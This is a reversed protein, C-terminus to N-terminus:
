VYNRGAISKINEPNIKGDANVTKGYAMFTQDTQPINLPHVTAPRTTTVLWHLLDQQLEQVVDQYDPEFFLNKMEWPDADLDYLEGFGDPYDSAFMEEPYYILRYKGKRISKSWAFETVGIEHVQGKEGRLLHSIDKGDSTEMNDIGVLNCITNCFDVSEVIEDAKYGTKFEGPWRWIMPVRTIADSCIGPAKELVGHECAYDGHDSSYIVITDEDLDNEKLWDILEGVAHDVHSVNGLYGHLKRLRGAKYTKPEFLQWNGNRFHNATRILNPAKGIMDYDANPPLTLDSEDYLDWFEQAPTYCQHPKPLSVHLFFPDNDDVCQTMFEMGKRVAWGEQGDEYSVKSPRGEVTQNGRKGFERMAGHDELETLNRDALYEAYEKSRGQVSTGCTDHFIDSDDEIWNEPCHIKGVAGIKYGNEQLHGLLTPLGKPKPGSLGYYGHNHCYQGSFWSVRSPTCIPNQTIANDFRVGEQAMKDLNPTKVDPHDKHGLVKANHQDSIIFLVNPKQTM